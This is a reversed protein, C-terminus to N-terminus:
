RVEGKHPVTSITAGPVHHTSSGTSSRVLDSSQMTHGCHGMLSVSQESLQALRLPIRNVIFGAPFGEVAGDAWVKFVNGDTAHFEFIPPLDFVQDVASM